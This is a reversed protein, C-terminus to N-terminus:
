KSSAKGKLLAPWNLIVELTLEQEHAARVLFRKGDSTVTFPFPGQVRQAALTFLVRPASAELTDAGLKLSVSMLKNEPTLYILESGNPNWEASRGGGTSIQWKGRAEPFTQM